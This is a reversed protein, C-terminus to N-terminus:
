PSSRGQNQIASFSAVLPLSCMAKCAFRSGIDIREMGGRDGGAAAVIAPRAQPGM